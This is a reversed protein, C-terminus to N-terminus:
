ILSTINEKQLLDKYSSLIERLKNTKEKSMPCLPGRLYGVDYRLIKMATKIPIPNVDSFIADILPMIREQMENAAKISDDEKFRLEKLHFENMLRLKNKKNQGIAM